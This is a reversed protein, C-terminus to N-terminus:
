PREPHIITESRDDQSSVKIENSSLNLLLERGKTTGANKRSIQASNKFLVIKKGFYWHLLGSKGSLDEKSFTVNDRATIEELQNNLDFSLEIQRGGLVNAAQNLSANGTVVIKREATNLLVTQGRLVLLEGGNFFKLDANGNFAMRNTLSDFFMEDAHLEIDDQFLKVKGKFRILNGKDTMEMAVASVFLPKNSLLVSKKEPTLTAQVGKVANVQRQRSHIQFHSSTFKNKKSILTADQGTIDVLFQAADYNLEPATGQFGEVSFACNDKAKIEVLLGDQSYFASLTDGSVTVNDRGRSTLTGRALTQVKELTQNESRLYIHTIESVLQGSNKQDQLKIKGAGHVTVQRMRGDPDYDMRILDASIEKSQSRGDAGREVMSFFCNGFNSMSQLHVFDQDFQMSMWDSRATAGAGILESNKQLVLLNDKKIVWFTSTRFDYPQGNRTMAGRCQFLKLVPLHIYYEMGAAAQGSVNKLKFDVLEKSLLLERNQLCFNQSSLLFDDSYIRAHGRIDFNYFNTSVIGSDGVVHIDKELKATKYFTAAIKKMLLQNEGQRLSELCKIELRKQNNSDFDLYTLNRSDIATNVIKASPTGKRYHLSFFIVAILILLAAAAPLRSRSRSRSKIKM